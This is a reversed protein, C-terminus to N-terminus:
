VVAEAFAPGSGKRIALKVGAGCFPSRNLPNVLDKHCIASGFSDQDVRMRVDSRVKERPNHHRDAVADDCGTAFHMESLAHRAKEGIGLGSRRASDFGGFAVGEAGICDQQCRAVACPIDVALKGILPYAHLCFGECHSDPDLVLLRENICNLVVQTRSFGPGAVERRRSVIQCGLYAVPVDM